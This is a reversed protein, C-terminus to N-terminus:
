ENETGAVETALTTWVPNVNVVAYGDSDKRHWLVNYSYTEPDFTVEPNEYKYVQIRQRSSSIINAEKIFPMFEFSGTIFQFGGRDHEALREDFGGENYIYYTGSDAHRYIIKWPEKWERWLVTEEVPNEFLYHWENLWGAEVKGEHLSTSKPDLEDQTYGFFLWDDLWEPKCRIGFATQDDVYPVIEYEWGGVKVLLITVDGHTYAIYTPHDIDIMVGYSGIREPQMMSELFDKLLEYDIQYYESEDEYNNYWQLIMKGSLYYISCSGGISNDTSKYASIAISYQDPAIHIEGCPIVASDPMVGLISRLTEIEENTMNFHGPRCDGSRNFVNVINVEEIRTLFESFSEPPLLLPHDAVLLQAHWDVFDSDPYREAIVLCVADNQSFLHYDESIYQYKVTWDNSLPDLIDFTRTLSRFEYVPVKENAEVYGQWNWDVDYSTKQGTQLNHVTFADDSVEYRYTQVLQLSKIEHEDTAAHSIPVYTGSAMRYELKMVDALFTNLEANNVSRRNGTIQAESAADFTFYAYEGDWHLEIDFDKCDLVAHLLHKKPKEKMFEHDELNHIIESLQEIQPKTLYVKHSGDEDWVTVDVAKSDYIWLDSTVEYASPGEDQPDTLFCVAAAVCALVAVLIVWFAPKKYNLVSQIRNKVGVEGFALPCAAIMRRPISCELLAVSYAKRGATDLAKVVKEDCAQEIDRCLLIYALWLVPNFWYVSLLAFGLPKWWHDRRKLHAQEHALVHGATLPDLESPLYIKPRIIGLIFPTEIHDCLHVTKDLAICVRVKRRVLIYSIVAYLLMLVVGLIWLQSFVFSLIQTPNASTLEAPALSEAIVPNIAQDLSSIGTQMQPAAAYLFEQPLPEANPILSFMSELSFPFLLRVAVLAWLACHIAKPAKKLVFRLVLVAAVLYSATISMNVLKLFVAEM